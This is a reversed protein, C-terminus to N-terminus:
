WPPPKSYEVWSKKRVVFAEYDMGTRFAEMDLRGDQGRKLGEVMYEQMIDPLTKRILMRYLRTHVATNGQFIVKTRPHRDLFSLLIFAITPLVKISDADDRHHNTDVKGDDLLSGFALNYYARRRASSFQVIKWIDGKSGTSLFKFTMLNKTSFIHTYGQYAMKGVIEM